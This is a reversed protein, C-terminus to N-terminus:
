LNVLTPCRSWRSHRSAIGACTLAEMVDTVFCAHGAAKGSRPVRTDTCFTKVRKVADLRRSCRSGFRLVVVAGHLPSGAPTGWQM